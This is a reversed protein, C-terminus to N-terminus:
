NINWNTEDSGIDEFSLNSVGADDGTAIVPECLDDHFDLGVRQLGGGQVHRIAEPGLKRGSSSPRTIAAFPVLGFIDQSKVPLTQDQPLVLHPRKDAMPPVNEYRHLRRKEKLATIAHASVDGSFSNKKPPLKFPAKAFVDEEM